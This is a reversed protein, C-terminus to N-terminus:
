KVYFNATKISSNRLTLQKIASDAICADIYQLMVITFNNTEDNQYIM